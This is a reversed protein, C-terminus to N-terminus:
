TLGPVYPLLLLLLLVLVLLLQTAQIRTQQMFLRILIVLMLCLQPKM